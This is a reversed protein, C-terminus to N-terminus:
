SDPFRGLGRVGFGPLQSLPRGLGTAAGFRLMQHRHTAKRPCLDVRSPSARRTLAPSPGVPLHPRRPESPRGEGLGCRGREKGLTKAVRPPVLGKEQETPISYPKGLPCKVLSSFPFHLLSSISPHSSSLSRWFMIARAQHPQGTYHGPTAARHSPRTHSGPTIAQHSPRTHSGLTIAQHSSRTHSGPTISHHSQGTHHGPTIPQHPQGTHHGPTIAQHPQGPTIAQHPQGTHHGPIIVQYPQRTHHEPTAAQHSCAIIVHSIM